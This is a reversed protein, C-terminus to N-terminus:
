LQAIVHPCEVREVSDMGEQWFGFSLTLKYVKNIASSTAKFLYQQVVKM